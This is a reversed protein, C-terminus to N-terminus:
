YRFCAYAHYMYSEHVVFSAM